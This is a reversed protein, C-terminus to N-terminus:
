QWGRLTVWPDSGDGGDQEEEDTTGERRNETRRLVAVAKLAAWDVAGSLQQRAARTSDRVARAVEERVADGVGLRVGDRLGAVADQLLVRALSSPM